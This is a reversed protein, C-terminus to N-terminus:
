WHIVMWEKITKSTTEEDKYYGVMMNDGKAIIEGTEGPKVTDGDENVVKLDVGPIGKGMSGLKERLKEPPLYSLRATAETQGYMVYFDIEPFAEIFESIFAKHLKGGAQTVYRLSPFETTKFDKRKAYSFRFIARSEQM